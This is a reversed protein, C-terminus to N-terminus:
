EEADPTYEPKTDDIEIYWERFSLAFYESVTPIDGVHRWGKPTFEMCVPYRDGQDMYWLQVDKRIRQAHETTIKRFKAM